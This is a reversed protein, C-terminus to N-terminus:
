TGGRTAAAEDDFAFVKLKPSLEEGHGALERARFELFRGFYHQIPPGIFSLVAAILGVGFAIAFALHPNVGAASEWKSTQPV